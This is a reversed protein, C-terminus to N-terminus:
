GITVGFHLFFKHFIVGADDHDSGTFAADPFGGNRCIEGHGDGQLALFHEKHVTVEAVTAEVEDRSKRIVDDVVDHIDGGSTDRAVADYDLIVARFIKEEHRRGIAVVAADVGEGELKGNARQFFVTIVVVDDNIGGTVDTFREHQRCADAIRCVDDGVERFRSHAGCFFGRVRQSFATNTVSREEDITERASGGVFCFVIDDIDNICGGELEDADNRIVRLQDGCTVAADEHIFHEAEIDCVGKIIEGGARQSLFSFKELFKTQYADKDYLKITAMKTEM